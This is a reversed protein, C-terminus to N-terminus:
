GRKGHHVERKRKAVDTGGGSKQKKETWRFVKKIPKRFTGRTRVKVVGKASHHHEDEAGGGKRVSNEEKVEVSEKKKEKTCRATHVM